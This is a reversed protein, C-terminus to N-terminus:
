SSPLMLDVLDMALSRAESIGKVYKLPGESSWNLSKLRNVYKHMLEYNM